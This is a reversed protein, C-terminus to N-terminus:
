RTLVPDAWAAHAEIHSGPCDIFLELKDIGSVNVQFNQFTEKRQLPTSTWLVNGDGVVRFTLASNTNRLCVATGSLGHFKRRLHFAIHGSSGRGPPHLWIGNLIKNENVEFIHWKLQLYDPALSDSMFMRIESPPFSTLYQTHSSQAKTLGSLRKQIRTKEEAPLQPLARQYWM